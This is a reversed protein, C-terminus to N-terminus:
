ADRKVKRQRKMPDPLVPLQNLKLWYDKIIKAIRVRDDMALPKVLFSRAGHRYSEELDREDQSSTLVIVPLAALSKQRSIWKLVEMGPTVPLNLDLLVLCPFPYEARNAYPGKGALYNIAQGGDEAVKVPNVIGAKEFAYQLFFVDNPDDEVLLICREDM